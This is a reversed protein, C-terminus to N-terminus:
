KKAKKVAKADHLQKSLKAKNRAAKNKHMINNGAASDLEAFVVKLLEDALDFEAGAVAARFKKVLTNIKAKVMRNELNKKENVAIRKKASKINAM